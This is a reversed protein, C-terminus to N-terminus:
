GTLDGQIVNDTNETNGRYNPFAKEKDEISLQEYKISKGQNPCIWYPYPGGPEQVMTGDWELPVGCFPCFPRREKQRLERMIDDICDRLEILCM